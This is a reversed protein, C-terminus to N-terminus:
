TDDLTLDRNLGGTVLWEIARQVSARTVEPVVILNKQMFCPQFAFEATIDQELRIPSCFCVTYKGTGDIHLVGVMWGKSEVIPAESDYEEPFIFQYAAMAEISM